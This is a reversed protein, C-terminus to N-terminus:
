TVESSMAPQEIVSVMSSASVVANQCAGTCVAASRQPMDVEQWGAVPVRGGGAELLTDDWFYDEERHPPM